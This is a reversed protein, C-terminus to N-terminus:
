SASTIADQNKGSICIKVIM